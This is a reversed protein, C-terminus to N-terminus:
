RVPDQEDRLRAMDALVATVAAPDGSRAANRVLLPGPATTPM